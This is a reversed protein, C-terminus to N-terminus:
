KRYRILEGETELQDYGIFENNGEKLVIWDEADTATAARSRDKQKQMEATFEEENVSLKNESAILRTLDVPFGYTDYLEFADKGAIIVEQHNLSIM